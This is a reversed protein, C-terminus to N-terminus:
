SKLPIMGSRKAYNFIGGAEIVAKADGLSKLAFFHNDIIVKEEDLDVILEKGTHIEQPFEDQIEYPFVAGTAICNRFFIRAYSRAIIVKCGAAALAIPAHERSSGCGFNKGAIIIPYITKTKGAEVYRHPYSSEPLGSLAFSGLKELEEPVTPLYMLYQAPIIQDTDINDKVVFVKGFIRNAM